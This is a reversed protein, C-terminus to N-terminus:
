DGNEERMYTYLTPKFIGVMRCIEGVTHEKQRYLKVALVRKDATLKPRRGGERGRAKAAELRARTRERILDRAADPGLLGQSLSAQLDNDMLLVRRGARALTGALHHTTSTKSVGGKQNLLVITTAGM